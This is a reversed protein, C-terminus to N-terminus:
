IKQGLRPRLVFNAINMNAKDEVEWDEEDDLINDFVLTCCCGKDTGNCSLRHDFRHCFERWSM